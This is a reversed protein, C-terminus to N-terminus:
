RVGAPQAALVPGLQMILREVAFRPEVRGTKLELEANVALELARALSGLSAARALREVEDARFPPVGIGGATQKSYTRSEILGRAAYLIEIERGISWLLRTAVSGQNLDVRGKEDSLGLDFCGSAAAFAKAAQGRVVLGAVRFQSGSRTPAVLGDVATADILSRPRAALELRALADDLEALNNGVHEILRVVADPALRLAHQAARDQVWTGLLSTASIESEGFATEYLPSCDVAFTDLKKAYASRKDWDEVHLLLVSGGASAALFSACLDVHRKVMPGARRVSVVKGESFLSATRAEDFVADPEIAVGGERVGDMTVYGPGPEGGGFVARVVAREAEARLFAEDGALVYGAAPRKLVSRIFDTLKRM